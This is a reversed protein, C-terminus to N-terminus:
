DAAYVVVHLVRKLSPNHRSYLEMWTHGRQRGCVTFGEDSRGVSVLRADEVRCEIDDVAGSSIAYTVTGTEGLSLEIGNGSLEIQTTYPVTPMSPATKTFCRKIAALDRAVFTGYLASQKENIPKWWDVLISEEIYKSSLRALSQTYAKNFRESVQLQVVINDGDIQSEISNDAATLGSTVLYDTLWTKLEEVATYLGRSILREQYADDGAQEHYALTIAKEDSAKDIQGRHFTENKVAEIILPKNLTLKIVM